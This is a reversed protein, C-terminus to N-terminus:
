NLIEYVAAGSKDKRCTAPKSSMRMTSSAVLDITIATTAAGDVRERTQNMSIQYQHVAGVYAGQILNYSAKFLMTM